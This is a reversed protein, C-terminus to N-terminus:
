GEPGPTRVRDGPGVAATSPIVRDDPALGTTVEVFDNGRLGIGVSRRVVRGDRVVAVWPDATGLGRVADTALVAVSERRATEIDVSLTMGPRLYDPPEEVALRIEVTGQAPDVRPTVLSVVADFTDDPYADASVWAPAGPRLRGLNDESPFAVIGTPGEQAVTVLARGPQVADGPEALRQLVVGPYPTRVATLDLRSRAAELAARAAAVSANAGADSDWPTARARAAELRSAADAARQEAQELRQRTLGGAEVVARIRELDRTAQELELEAREIEDRTLAQVEVLRAEAQAVAARAERDDLRVVVQGSAVRDGERVGVERVVGTVVAGLAATSPPRVRGVVVLRERLDRIELSTTDVSPPRLVLLYIALAVAVVLVAAAAWGLRERAM